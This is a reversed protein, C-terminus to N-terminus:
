INNVDDVMIDLKEQGSSVAFSRNIIEKCRRYTNKDYCCRKIQRLQNQLGEKHYESYAQFNAAQESIDQLGGNALLTEDLYGVPAKEADSLFDKTQLKRNGYDEFFNYDPDRLERITPLPVDELAISDSGRQLSGKLQKPIATNSEVYDNDNYNQSDEEAGEAQETM